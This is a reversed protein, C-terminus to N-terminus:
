LNPTIARLILSERRQIFRASLSEPHAKETLRIAHELDDAWVVSLGLIKEEDTLQIPMPSGVITATFCYSRQREPNQDKHALTEGIEQIHDIKYGVEELVERHL